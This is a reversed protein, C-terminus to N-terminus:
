GVLARRVAMHAAFVADRDGIRAIDAAAAEGMSALREGSTGLAARLAAEISEPSGAEALWGNRGPTLM